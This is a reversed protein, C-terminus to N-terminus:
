KMERGRRRQYADAKGRLEFLASSKVSNLVHFSAGPFSSSFCSLEVFKLALRSFYFPFLKECANLEPYSTSEHLVACWLIVLLHLHLFVLVTFQSSKPLSTKNLFEVDQRGGTLMGLLAVNGDKNVFLM